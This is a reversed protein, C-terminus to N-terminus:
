LLHCSQGELYFNLKRIFNQCGIKLRNEASQVYQKIKNEERIISCVIIQTRLHLWFNVKKFM